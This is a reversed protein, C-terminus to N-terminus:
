RGPGYPIDQRQYQMSRLRKVRERTAPHTRLWPSQRARDSFIIQWFRMGSPELKSLASALGAPDGTLAAADLDANFERTRSLALELLTVAHPALGFIVILLLPPTVEGLWYYPLSVIILLMGSLAMVSTIHGLMTALSMMRIDHNRFHSIEHALVGIIERRNLLRLLGDTLAIASNGTQGLSIANLSPSPLYYLAPASELGARQALEEMVAYGEPWHHPTLPVARYMALTWNVPISPFFMLAAAVLGAGWLVAEAGWVLWGILAAIGAMMGILLVSHALNRLKRAIHM